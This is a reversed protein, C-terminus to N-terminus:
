KSFEKLVPVAVEGVADGGPARYPPRTRSYRFNGAMYERDNCATSDPIYGYHGDTYGCTLVCPLPTERKINLGICVFPEFPMGVYGVDGLRAVVIEIELFKPTEAAKGTRYQELAWVYWPRVMEVLKARYPPTLAKPFNMGVCEMTNQDGSNGRRVFDDISALDRKLSNTDPLEALPINVKKRAWQLDSRQSIHVSNAAKIFSDGLYEGLQRSQEITGTLMYKSNIDGACGQFFAVPVGGLYSSLKECAVQPFQGFSVMHEPNYGTVPHGTFFTLATVPHGNKGRLIVVTADPDITGIYSDGLEMRDEERIFYARGDPRKGRRNYTIREERAVGWEVTVPVLKKELGQLASDLGELFQRNLEESGSPVTHNHSSAFVVQTKTLGLKKAILIKCTDEGDLSSTLFCLKTDGYELLVVTSKLDGYVKEIKAGLHGATEQGIKPTTSFTQAAAKLVPKKNSGCASLSIIAVILSVAALLATIQLFTRRSKKM